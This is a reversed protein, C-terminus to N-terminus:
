EATDMKEGDVAKDKKAATTKKKTKKVGERLLAKAQDNKVAKESQVIGADYYPIGTIKLPGTPMLLATFMFHAIHEGEKEHLVQYPTVLGHAECERIGLRAKGQEEFQRLSFGVTGFKKQIDSLVERSAKVKLNYTQSSNRKYINTRTEGVRPKGDGTSVLIDICWADGDEFTVKETDKRSAETPNLIITKPGDIVNRKVSHSLMNEVPKCGFDETINAVLETVDFNTATESKLMRLTAEAANQAALLVDAQRGTIPNEKDAGIVITHAVQAVYGDIHTGLEVKVMDGKKLTVNAEPDSPVPSLHCVVNGPSVCTPFAIGKLMKGKNYVKKAEDEITKDGLQCLELVKAGEVCGDLVAKIAKNTIDAATKYKTVINQDELFSKEEEAEEAGEEVDSIEEEVVKKAGKKSM